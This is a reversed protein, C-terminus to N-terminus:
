RDPEINYYNIIFKTIDMFPMTLTESAYTVGKPDVMYLFILFKANYAPFYGFFSHFYKDTFYGGGPNVLQATGTKAAISYHPMKVTGNRLSKDVVEVLMRTIEDSTEKKIIQKDPGGDIEASLGYEYNIKNVIHPSVLKGGNALSALARVTAIPTLAIGQGFSATAIEIERNNDLNGVLGSIENPLDIGTEEGLGFKMIYERFKESGMKLAVHAAGTNLSKSLVYQMDVKGHAKGDFNSIKETNLELFGKDTYTSQADITGSDIGASITLAKIISGMEFVNQVHSDTFSGIKEQNFSNPNYSPTLAMSLVAGTQPNIIIAGAKSPQWKENIESLKKEVFLQVTPEISTVIDGERSSLSINKGINSFIEAFFNTYLSEGRRHLVDNYYSELGYRGLVEDGLFGVFGLTHSALNEAPYYRWRNKVLIVGDLKLANIEGASRDDLRKELEEYPDDKKAAKRLFDERSISTFPKLAEYTAESDKIKSPDIALKFGSKLTAASILTGDKSQFYISGRDYINNTPSIYQREAKM